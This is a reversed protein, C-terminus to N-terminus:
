RGGEASGAARGWGAPPGDGGGRGRSGAGVGQTCADRGTGPGPGGGLRGAERVAACAPIQRTDGGVSGQRTSSTISVSGTASRHSLRLVRPRPGRGGCPAPDGPRPGWRRGGAGQAPGGGPAASAPPRGRRRGGGQRAPSGAFPQFRAASPGQRAAGAWSGRPGGRKTHGGQSEHGGGVGPSPGWPPRNEASQRRPRPGYGGPPGRVGRGGGGTASLSVPPSPAATAITRAPPSATSSAM